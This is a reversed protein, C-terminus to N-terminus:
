ERINEHDSKPSIDIDVLPPIEARPGRLASITGKKGEVMVSVNAAHVNPTIGMIM